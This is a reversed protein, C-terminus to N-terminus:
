LTTYGLMHHCGPPVVSKHKLNVIWTSWRQLITRENLFSNISAGDGLVGCSRPRNEHLGCACLSYWERLVIHDKVYREAQRDTELHVRDSEM